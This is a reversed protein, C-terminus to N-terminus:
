EIPRLSGVILSRAKGFRSWIRELDGRLAQRNGPGEDADVPVYETLAILGPEDALTAEVERRRGPDLRGDLWVLLSEVERAEGSRNSEADRETEIRRLMEEIKDADVPKLLYDYAGHRLALQAYEFLNYASLFVV